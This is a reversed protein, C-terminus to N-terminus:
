LAHLLVLSMICNYIINCIINYIYIDFLDEIEGEM